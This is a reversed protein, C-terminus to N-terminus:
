EDAAELLSPYFSFDLRRTPEGVTTASQRCERDLEQLEMASIGYRRQVEGLLNIRYLRADVESRGKINLWSARYQDGDVGTAPGIAEKLAARAASKRSNAESVMLEARALERACEKLRADDKLRFAPTRAEPYIAKVLKNADDGVGAAPPEGKVVHREWWAGSFNLIHDAFSVRRQVTYIDLQLEAVMLLPVDIVVRDATLMQWTTQIITRRPIQDTGAPGWRDNLPLSKDGFPWMSKLEVAATDDSLVFRDPTSIAWAHLPHRAVGHPPLDLSPLYLELGTVEEYMRAIIPELERGVKMRQSENRKRPAAKGTKELWVDVPTRRTDVGLIVPVDTSGLGSRRVQLWAAREVENM